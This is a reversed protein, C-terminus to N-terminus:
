RSRTSCVPRRLASVGDLRRYASIWSLSTHVHVLAPGRCELAERLAPRVDEEAQATLGLAGHARALMAFDPNVLDTAIVRGPYEREQHARITAYSCNDAVIVVVPLAAGVATILEGGNMLFGGDGVIAIVPREQSRLAAAVAAPVAFGMPSATLGMLRGGTTLRLYRYVWSTFTGSDVVVTTQGGTLDDIATAVVGFPIGDTAEHPHWVSKAAEIAHLREVWGAREAGAQRPLTTLAALFAVPDCALGIAPRHSLGIREADPYVHVLPQQPVPAAPFRQRQTTVEDLRTGVALVLDAESLATLQERPTSNHLHGAYHPDRNDILDQHKNSTVVPLGHSQAAEALARRGRPTALRGGAIVLPRRAGSLLRAVEAMADPAPIVPGENWHASRPVDGAVPQRGVNEPIVLVVPGPTGSEAIRFARVALEVTRSADHLTLVAKALGSFMAAADIEQFVERGLNGQAVQGVILLLPTADQRAAHVGIAANAAGPGRSVLCIGARGTLKADALAAFAASGEHRCTVVDIEATGALEDLIALYSEGAVCFVRDAGHARLTAVLARATTQTGPPAHGSTPQETMLRMAM